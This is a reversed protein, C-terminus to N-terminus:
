IDTTHNENYAVDHGLSQSSLCIGVAVRPTLLAVRKVRKSSPLTGASLIRTHPASLQTRIPGLPISLVTWYGVVVPELREKSSSRCDLEETCFLGLTCEICKEKGGRFALRAGLTDLLVQM